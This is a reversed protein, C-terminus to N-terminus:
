LSVSEVAEIFLSLRALGLHHSDQEVWVDAASGVTRYM